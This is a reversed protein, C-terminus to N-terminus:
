TKVGESWSHGPQPTDVARKVVEEAQQRAHKRPQGM